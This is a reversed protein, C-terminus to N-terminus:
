GHTVTVSPSTAGDLTSQRRRPAPAFLTDAGNSLRERLADPLAEPSEPADRARVSEPSARFAEPPKLPDPIAIPPQSRAEPGLNATNSRTAEPNRQGTGVAKSVLWAHEPNSASPVRIPFRVPVNNSLAKLVEEIHRCTGRHQAGPCDCELANPVNTTTSTTTM